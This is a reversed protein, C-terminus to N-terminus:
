EAILARLPERLATFRPFSVGRSKAAYDAIMGERLGTSSVLAEDAGLHELMVRLAVAGPLLTDVGGMRAGLLAVRGGEDLASLRRELMRLTAVSLRSEPARLPASDTSPTTATRALKLLKRATGCSFVVTDFGLRRVHVLTPEIATTVTHELRQLDGASPPAEWTFDGRLRLAGLKLTATLLCGHDDALVVETSGGGFDILASRRGRLASGQRTGLCVLRAEELGDIVQIPFGAALSAGRVFERGNSAERIASTAVALLAQPAHQHAADRLSRVASLGREFAEASIRGTQFVSEGLQVRQKSRAITTFRGDDTLVAVVMHFSNSGLDFAALTIPAVSELTAKRLLGSVDDDIGRVDEDFM